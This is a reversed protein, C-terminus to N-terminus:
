LDSKTTTLTRQIEASLSGSEILRVVESLLYQFIVDRFWWAMFSAFLLYAFAALFLTFLENM